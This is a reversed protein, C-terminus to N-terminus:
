QKLALAAAAVFAVASLAATSSASGGATTVTPAAVTQVTPTTVVNYQAADEAKLNTLVTAMTTALSTSTIASARNQANSALTPTVVATFAVSLATRRAASAVSTVSCGAKYNTSAATTNTAAISDVIGIESGYGYNAVKEYASNAFAAVSALGPFTMKVVQKITTSGAVTAAATPAPTPTTPTSPSGGSTYGSTYGSSSSFSSSFSRRAPGKKVDGTFHYFQASACAVIALLLICKMTESRLRSNTRVGM